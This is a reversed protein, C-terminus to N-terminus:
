FLFMDRVFGVVRGMGWRGALGLKGGSSRCAAQKSRFFCILVSASHSMKVLVQNSIFQPSWCLNHRASLFKYGRMIASSHSMAMCLGSQKM